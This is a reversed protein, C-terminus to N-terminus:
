PTARGPSAARLAASIRPTWTDYGQQNLHLRDAKFLAPDPEGRDNLLPSFTDVFQVNPRHAAFAALRSNLDQQAPMLAARSGSPKVALLLVPIGPLQSEMRDLFEVYDSAVAAPSDGRALDNDGEYVVVVRPHYPLVVRDFYHLLDRMTSGGFGRNLIPQGPFSSAANTWLRFSSSGVFLVPRPPPPTRRDTAEYEQIESEFAQPNQPAARLVGSLIILLPLVRSFLQGASM